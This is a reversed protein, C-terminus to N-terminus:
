GNALKNAIDLATQRFVAEHEGAQSVGPIAANVLDIADEIAGAAHEAAGQLGPASAAAGGELASVAANRTEVLQEVAQMLLPLVEGELKAKAQALPGQAASSNAAQQLAGIADSLSMAPTTRESTQRPGPPELVNEGREVRATNKVPIDTADPEDRLRSLLAALEDPGLDGRVGDRISDLLADDELGDFIEDADASDWAADYDEDGGGGEPRRPEPPESV